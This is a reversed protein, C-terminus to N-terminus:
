HHPEIKKLKTYYKPDESLHDKAIEKALAYDNTHEMEVKIGMQLQDSDFDEDPRNDALGGPLRDKAKKKKSKTEKKLESLLM